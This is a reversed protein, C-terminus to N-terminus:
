SKTLQISGNVSEAHLSARGDGITGNLRKGGLRGQVEIPFDCDIHGNVVSGSLKVGADAPLTVRIGGNVTKFSLDHNASVRTFTANVQGNVTQLHAEGGLNHARVQGNVSEARVTGRIGDIKVSSNVTKIEDLSVTAPVKLRFKVGGRISNNGGFWGGSRKPLRVKIDARTDSLDITLEIAKLEEETKASKEGEILIENRDWTEIVIDGNVNHLSVQGTADFPATRSFPEKHSYDDARAATTLLGFALLALLPTKM